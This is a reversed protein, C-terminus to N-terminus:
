RFQLLKLFYKFSNIMPSLHPKFGTVCERKIDLKVLFYTEWFRHNLFEFNSSVKFGFAQKNSLIDGDSKRYRKHVPITPTQINYLTCYLLHM